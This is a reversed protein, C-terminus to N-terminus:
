TEESVARRKVPSFIGATNHLPRGGFGPAGSAPESGTSLKTSNHSEKRIALKKHPRSRFIMNVTQLLHHSNQYIEQSNGAQPERSVFLLFNKECGDHYRINEREGQIWHFV